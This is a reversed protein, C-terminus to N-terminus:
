RVRAGVIEMQPTGFYKGVEKILIEYHLGSPVRECSGQSENFNENSTQNVSANTPSQM